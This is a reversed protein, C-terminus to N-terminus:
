KLINKYDQLDHYIGDIRVIDDIIKYLMFYRHCKLHITRYGLAHLKSNDCLKLNDAIHSLRQTTDKMDQEVSYAAQANNLEFFLYDLINQIQEKADDTFIVKFDTDKNWGM